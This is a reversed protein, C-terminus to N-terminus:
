AVDGKLVYRRRFTAVWKWLEEVSAAADALEGHGIFSVSTPMSGRQRQLEAVASRDAGDDDRHFVV